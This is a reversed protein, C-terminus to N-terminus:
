CKFLTVLIVNDFPGYIVMDNNYFWILRVKYNSQALWSISDSGSGVSGPM